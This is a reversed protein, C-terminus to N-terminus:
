RTPSGRLLMRAKEAEVSTPSAAIVKELYPRARDSEGRTCYIEGIRLNLEALEPMGDWATLYEKLAGDAKGQEELLRGMEFHARAYRPSAELAKRLMAEAGALDGRKRLTLGWNVYVKEPTPYAPDALARRYEAEAEAYRGQESDVLALNVHVETFAPDLKIAKDYNERALDYEALSFYVFGLSNRYVANDPELEIAQLMQALANRVQGQEYLRLAFQYHAHARSESVGKKKSAEAGCAVLLLLLGCAASTRVWAGLSGRGMRM